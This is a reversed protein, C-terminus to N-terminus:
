FQDGGFKMEKMESLIENLRANLADNHKVSLHVGRKHLDARFSAIAYGENLLAGYRSASAIRISRAARKALFYKLFNM